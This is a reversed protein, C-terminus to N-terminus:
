FECNEKILKMLVEREKEELFAILFVKEEGFIFDFSSEGKSMQYDEDKITQIDREKNEKNFSECICIGYIMPNLDYYGCNDEFVNINIKQFLRLLKQDKKFVIKTYKQYNKTSFMKIKM